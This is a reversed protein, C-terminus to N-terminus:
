SKLREETIIDYFSFIRRFEEKNFNQYYEKSDQLRRHIQNLSICPKTSRPNVFRKYLLNWYLDITNYNNHKKNWPKDDWIHIIKAHRFLEDRIYKFDKTRYKNVQLICSPFQYTSSAIYVEKDLLWANLVHMEFGSGDWKPYQTSRLPFAEAFRIIEDRIETGLYKKDILFMGGGINEDSRRLLTDDVTNYIFDDGAGCIIEKDADFLEKLSGTVIQDVDLYLIKDYEEGEQNYKIGFSEVTFVSVVFRKYALIDYFREVFKDYIHDEVCHFYVNPCVSTLRKKSKENLTCYTSDHMIIFDGKYWSNYQLFTKMLVITADVYQDNTILIIGYKKNM